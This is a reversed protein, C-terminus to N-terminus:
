IRGSWISKIAIVWRFTYRLQTNNTLSSTMQSINRMNAIDFNNIRLRVRNVNNLM